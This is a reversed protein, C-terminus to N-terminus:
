PALIGLEDLRPKHADLHMVGVVAGLGNLLRALGSRAVAEHPGAAAVVVPAVARGFGHARTRDQDLLGVPAHYLQEPALLPERLAGVGRAPIHQTVRSLRGDSQLYATLSRTRACRMSRLRISRTFAQQNKALERPAQPATLAHNLNGDVFQHTGFGREPWFM